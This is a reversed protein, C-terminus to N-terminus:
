QWHVPRDRRSRWQWSYSPQDPSGGAPQVHRPEKWKYCMNLSVCHKYLLHLELQHLGIWVSTGWTLGLQLSLCLHFIKMLTLKLTTNPSRTGIIMSCMTKHRWLRKMSLNHLFGVIDQYWSWFSDFNRWLEESSCKRTMWTHGTWRTWWVDRLPSIRCRPFSLPPVQCCRRKHNWLLHTGTQLCEWRCQITLAGLFQLWGHIRGLCFPQTSGWGLCFLTQWLPRATLREPSRASWTTRRATTGLILVEM